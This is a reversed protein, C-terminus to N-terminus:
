RGKARIAAVQAPTVPAARNGWSSREHNAIDAIDADSLQMDPFQYQLAQLLYDVEARSISAENELDSHDLDTTGVLTVGEWPYLFVPRGDAPHMFSIAQAVPLRWFPLLLHSGRLPRLMPKAQVEGRLLDAWAGTANVVARARVQYSTGSLADQLTM